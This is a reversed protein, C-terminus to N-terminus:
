KSNLPRTLSDQKFGSIELRATFLLVMILREHEELNASM